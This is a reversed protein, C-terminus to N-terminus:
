KQNEHGGGGAGDFLGMQITSNAIHHGFIDTSGLGPHSMAHYTWILGEGNDWIAKRFFM